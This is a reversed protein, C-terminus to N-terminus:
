PGAGPPQGTLPHCRICRAMRGDPMEVLRTSADCEGCWPPKRTQARPPPADASTGVGRATGSNKLFEEPRTHAYDHLHQVRGTSTGSAGRPEGSPTHQARGTSASPTHQARGTADRPMALDYVKPRRDARIDKVLDPDGPLLLGLRELAAANKRAQSVTKRTRAAVTAALPYSGRGQEDAYRAYVVLTSVLEPPVGPAKDMAWLVAPKSLWQGTV